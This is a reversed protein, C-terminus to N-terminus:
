ATRGWACIILATKSVLEWVVLRIGDFISGKRYVADRIFDSPSM